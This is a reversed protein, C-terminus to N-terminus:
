GPMTVLRTRSPVVALSGHIQHVHPARQAPPHPDDHRSSALSPSASVLLAATALLCATRTRTRRM